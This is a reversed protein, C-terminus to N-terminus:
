LGGGAWSVILLGKFWSPWGGASCRVLDSIEISKTGLWGQQGRRREASEEADKDGGM